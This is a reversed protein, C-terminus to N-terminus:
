HVRAPCGQFSVRSHQESGGEEGSAGWGVGAGRPKRWAPTPESHGGLSLRHGPGPGGGCVEQGLRGGDRRMGKVKNDWRGM